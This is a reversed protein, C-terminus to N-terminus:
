PCNLAEPIKDANTPRNTRQPPIPTTTETTLTEILTTLARAAKDVAARTHHAHMLALSPTLEDSAARWKDFSHQAQTMALQADHWQRTATIARTTTDQPACHLQSLKHPNM